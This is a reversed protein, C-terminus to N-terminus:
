LLERVPTRDDLLYIPRGVQDPFTVAPDIGLVHYVTALVNQVSYRGERAEEGRATTSGVVQGMRLGGGAVLCSMVNPWHDRGARANVRPTRGFEGWVLVLVDKSLGLRHLDEVLARVGVDLYPMHRSDRLITFQREHTDWSLGVLPTKLTVFGVGAQVLRRALLFQRAPGYSERVGEDEREVILAQRVADSTIMAFARQRFEDMGALTGGADLDRRLTDFSALLARRDQLRQSDVELPLQLNRGAQDDPTFARHAVGLIGPELGPTLGRLSVFPPVEARGASRTRSVVAGVSPHGGTSAKDGERVSWGSMVQCDSHSDAMGAIARLIALKDMIRAQQPFHESVMIGPVNTRIPNFEGRFESPAEPKLDYTDVHSPGGDLYVMIVSKNRQTAGGAKSAAVARLRFLDALTLWGLAGIRLFDRRGLRDCRSSRTKRCITLM